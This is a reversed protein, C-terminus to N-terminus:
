NISQLPADLASERLAEELRTVRLAVDGAGDVQRAQEPGLVGCRDADHALRHMLNERALEVPEADGDAEAQGYRYECVGVVADVGAEGVARAASVLEDDACITRVGGDALQCEPRLDPRSVGPLHVPARGHAPRRLYCAAVGVEARGDLGAEVWDGFPLHVDVNHLINGLAWAPSVLFQRCHQAPQEPLEAANESAGAVFDTVRLLDDATWYKGHDHRRWPIASPHNQDAVGRVRRRWLEGATGANRDLIRHHQGTMDPRVRRQLRRERREHLRTELPASHHHVVGLLEAFPFLAGAS